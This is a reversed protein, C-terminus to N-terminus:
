ERLYWNRQQSSYHTNQRYCKGDAETCSPSHMIQHTHTHTHTHHIISCEPMCRYSATWCNNEKIRAGCHISDLLYLVSCLSYFSFGRALVTYFPSHITTYIPYWTDCTWKMKCARWELAEFHQALSTLTTSSVWNYNSKQLRTWNAQIIESFTFLHDDTRTSMTEM